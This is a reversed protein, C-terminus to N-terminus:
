FFPLPESGTSGEGLHVGVKIWDSIQYTVMCAKYCGKKIESLEHLSSWTQIPKRSM